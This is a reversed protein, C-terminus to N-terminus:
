TGGASNSPMSLVCELMISAATIPTGFSRVPSAGKANITNSGSWGVTSASSTFRNTASRTAGYLCIAAPTCNTSDSGLLAAPFINRRMRLSSYMFFGFVQQNIVALQIIIILRKVFDICITGM